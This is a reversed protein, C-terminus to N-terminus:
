PAGVVAKNLDSLCTRLESDLHSVRQYSQGLLALVMLGLTSLIFLSVVGDMM